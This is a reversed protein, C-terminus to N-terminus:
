PFVSLGKLGNLSVHLKVNGPRPDPMKEKEDYKGWACFIKIKTPLICHMDTSKVELPKTFCAVQSLLTGSKMNTAIHM